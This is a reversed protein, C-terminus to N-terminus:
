KDLNMILNKLNEKTFIERDLPNELFFEVDRKVKGWDM